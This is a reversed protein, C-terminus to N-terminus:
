TGLQRRNTRFGLVEEIYTKVSHIKSDGGFGAPQEKLMGKKQTNTALHGLEHAIWHGLWEEGQYRGNDIFVTSSPLHTFMLSMYGAPVHLHFARLAYLYKWHPFFFIRRTLVEVHILRIQARLASEPSPTAGTVAYSEAVAEPAPVPVETRLTSGGNTQAESFELFALLM